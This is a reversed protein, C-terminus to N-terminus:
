WQIVGVNRNPAFVIPISQTRGPPYLTNTCATGDYEYIGISNIAMPIANVSNGSGDPQDNFATFTLTQNEGNEEILVAASYATAANNKYHVQMCILRTNFQWVGNNSECNSPFYKPGFSEGERHTMDCHQALSLGNIAACSSPTFSCLGTNSDYVGGASACNSSSLSCFNKRKGGALRCQNSTFVCNTGNWTSGAPCTSSTFSCKRQQDNWSGNANLCSLRSFDCGGTGYLKITGSVATCDAPALQCERWLGGSAYCSKQNVNCGWIGTATACASPTFDCSSTTADWAISANPCSSQTFKCSYKDSDWTGGANSCSVPTFACPIRGTWTRSNTTCKTKTIHCSNTTADWTGQANSCATQDFTCYSTTTDWTGGVTACQTATFACSPAITGGVNLCQKKNTSYVSAVSGLHGCTGERLKLLNVSLGNSIDIKWDNKRVSPLITTKPYDADFGSGGAAQDKGKSQITLTVANDIAGLSTSPDVISGAANKLVFNWGYNHDTNGTAQSGWGDSFANAKYDPNKLTLYPGKWGTWTEGAAECLAQNVLTTNTGTCDTDNSQAIWKVPALPYVGECWAKNTTYAAPRGNVTNESITYDPMCYNQVLLEQINRPLRGMDAVFGSIDPQGNILVDPRGIIAQMLKDYRDKTVEYRGQFAFDKTFDLTVSAIVVAILMVTVMEVLTFGHQTKQSLNKM